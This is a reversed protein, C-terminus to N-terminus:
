NFYFHNKNTEMWKVTMDLFSFEKSGRVEVTYHNWDEPYKRSLVFSFFINFTLHYHNFSSSFLTFDIFFSYLDM